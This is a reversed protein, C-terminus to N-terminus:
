FICLLSIVMLTLYETERQLHILLTLSFKNFVNQEKEKRKTKNRVTCLLKVPFVFLMPLVISNERFPAPSENFETFEPFESFRLFWQPM